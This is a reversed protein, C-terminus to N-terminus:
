RCFGGEGPDLPRHGTENEVSNIRITWMTASAVESSNTRMPCLFSIKPVWPDYLSPALSGGQLASGM